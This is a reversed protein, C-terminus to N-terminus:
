DASDATAVNRVTIPESGDRMEGRQILLLTGERLEVREAEVTATGEGSVVFLWQDSGRERNDSGGETAGAARTM